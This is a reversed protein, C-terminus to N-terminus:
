LIQFCGTHRYDSRSPHRDTDAIPMDDDQAIGVVEEKLEDRLGDGSALSCCRIVEQRSERSEDLSMERVTLFRRRSSASNSSTGIAAWTEGSRGVFKGV